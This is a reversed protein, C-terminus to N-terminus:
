CGRRRIRALSARLSDAGTSHADGVRPVGGFWRSMEAIERSAAAEEPSPNSPLVPSAITRAWEVVGGHLVLANRVGARRLAVAAQTAVAEDDGYVVVTEGAQWDKGEVRGLSVREASPIAFTEFAQSDRVDIVRLGAKDNRIWRALELASISSPSVANPMATGSVAALAGLALAAIALGSHLRASTM